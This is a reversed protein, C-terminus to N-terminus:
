WQAVDGPMLTAENFSIENSGGGCGKAIVEQLAILIDKAADNNLM